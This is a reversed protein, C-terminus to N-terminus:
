GKRRQDSVSWEFGEKACIAKLHPLVREVEDASPNLWLIEEGDSVNGIAQFGYGETEDGDLVKEIVNFFTVVDIKSPEVKKGDTLQFWLSSLDFEMLSTLALVDAKSWNDTAALHYTADHQQMKSVEAKIHPPFEFHEGDATCVQVVGAKGGVLTVMASLVFKSWKGLKDCCNEDTDDERSYRVSLSHATLTAELTPRDGTEM